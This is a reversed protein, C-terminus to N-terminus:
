RLPASRPEGANTWRVEGAAIRLSAPDIGEGKDLLRRGDRDLARIGLRERPRDAHDRDLRHRIAFAVAGSRSAVLSEIRALEGGLTPHWAVVEERVYERRRADFVNVNLGFSRGSHSEAYAVYDGAVTVAYPVEAFDYSELTESVVVRTGSSRRCAVVRTEYDDWRDLRRVSWVVLRGGVAHVTASGPVRCGGVERAQAPATGLSVLALALAPLVRRM